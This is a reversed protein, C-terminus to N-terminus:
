KLNALTMLLVHYDFGRVLYLMKLNHCVKCVSGPFKFVHNFLRYHCIMREKTKTKTKLEKVLISEVMIYCKYSKNVLIWFSISILELFITM